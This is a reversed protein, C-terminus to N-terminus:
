VTAVRAVAFRWLQHFPRRVRRQRWNYYEDAWAPRPSPYPNVFYGHRITDGWNDYFLDAVAIPFGPAHTLGSSVADLYEQRTVLRVGLRQCLMVPQRGDAPNLRVIHVPGILPALRQYVNWFSRLKWDMAM